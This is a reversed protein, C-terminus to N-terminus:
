ATRAELAREGKESTTDETNVRVCMCVTAYRIDDRTGHMEPVNGLLMPILRRPDILGLRFLPSLLHLFLADNVTATYRAAKRKELETDTTIVPAACLYRLIHRNLEPTRNRRGRMRWDVQRVWTTRREGGMIVFNGTNNAHRTRAEGKSINNV